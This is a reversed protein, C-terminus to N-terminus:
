LLNAITRVEGILYLSGGFVIMDDKEAIEVAKLIAKNIDKEVIVEKGYKEIKKGLDEASLKRPMYVETAIITDALPILSKLM